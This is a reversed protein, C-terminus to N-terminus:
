DIEINHRIPSLIFTFEYDKYPVQYEPRTIRGWSDECGLGTQLKDFCFNTLNAKKVELSHRQDKQAGDDLSHITYHLASASFPEAAVVKLGNGASNLLKWWRIDSKTGTEQPRIYSYFQEDVRQRYVALNANGKRDAYNEVPGRGYYEIQEFSKPMPMQMGFRFMASVKAQKQTTMKQSVKIAGINNISYSLDLKASVSPMDYTAKIIVMGNESHQEFAILKMKPNKWAAYKKQLGAGFDNDTPARWFNPKLAEGDLIMDQGNVLYRILFGSKRDFELRFDNGEVILFNADNEQITPPTTQINSWEKNKLVM